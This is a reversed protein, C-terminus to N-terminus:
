QSLSMLYSRLNVPKNRVGLKSRLNFRHFKVTNKSICLLGAIEDNTKGEKVLDAVRIETPTLDRYKSSLNGALPSIVNNLNAELVSVLGKQDSNLQTNKLRELYPTVLQKVHSLINEELRSKDEERHKVLVKLATNLEVLSQTHTKLEENSKQLANEAQKRETIDRVYAHMIQEGEYELYNVTIEVPFERGDKSRNISEFSLNGKDKFEHWFDPWNDEQYLPDVDHVKMSLLEESSRGMHRCASENVYRLRANKDVWFVADSAHEVCYQMLRAEREVRKLESVDTVVAFSGNLTGDSDFLPKPSIIAPVQQGDKRTFTIEYSDSEDRRRRHLQEKLIRQNTEDHLEIGLRGKLEDRDYGIMECFADNVYTLCANKDMVALGDNMTEVLLRYKDESERLAEEALKRKTIDRSVGVLGAVDGRKDLFPVKITELVTKKGEADTMAEEFRIAKRLKIAEQDSLACLEALDRPLLQKHTKGLIKEKGLGTLEECAKNIFLHRGRVDKFFVADPLAEILEFLPGQAEVLSGQVLRGEAAKKSPQNVRQELEKNKPKKGM